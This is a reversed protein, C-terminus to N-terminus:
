ASMSECTACGQNFEGAPGYNEPNARPSHFGFQSGARMAAIQQPTTKNAANLEDASHDSRGIPEYGPQGRMIAALRGCETTIFVLMPLAALNAARREFLSETTIVDSRM